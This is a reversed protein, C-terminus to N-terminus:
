SIVFDTADINTVGTLKIAFDITGGNDKDFAVYTDAGVVGIMVDYSNIGAIGDAAWTLFSAYDTLGTTKVATFSLGSTTDVYIKDTGHTFSKIEDINAASSEDTTAAETLYISDAGAGLTIVNKTKNDYIVTDKQAAFINAAGLYGSADISAAAEYGRYDIDGITITKTAGVTLNLWNNLVAFNDLVIGNDLPSATTTSKFGGTVTVNGVTINGSVNFDFDATVTATDIILADTLKTASLAINGVTLNGGVVDISVHGYAGTPAAADATNALSMDINGVKVPGVATSDAYLDFRAYGAYSVDGAGKVSLSVDGVTVAGISDTATLYLYFSADAQNKSSALDVDGVTVTGINETSSFSLTLGAYADAGNAVIDIAGALINGIGGVGGNDNEASLFAYVDAGDGVADMNINGYTINGITSDADNYQDISLRVTANKGAAMTIDGVTVNGINGDSVYVYNYFYAQANEAAQMNISGISLAGAGDEASFYQYGYIYASKAANLSVNGITIDGISGTDARADLYLSDFVANVGATVAINGVKINGISDTADLEITMSNDYASKGGSITLNGITVNGLSGDTASVDIDLSYAANSGLDLSVNGVTINGVNEGWASVDLGFFASNELKVAVNGLKIDSVDGNDAFAGVYVNLYANASGYMNINGLTVAGVSDGSIGNADNSVSITVSSSLGAHVDINGVTIAGVTAAGATAVTAYNSAWLYFDERSGMTLNINGITLAGVTANGKDAFARNEFTFYVDGTDTLSNGMVVAIDGITINGATANATLTASAKQYVSIDATGTVNDAGTITISGLTTNGVTANNGKGDAYAYNNISLDIMNYASKAGVASINGITINGATAAGNNSDASNYISFDCNSGNDAVVFDVTGITINGVKAAGKVSVDAYNHLRIDNSANVGLDVAVNGLTINGATANGTNAYASNYVSIETYGDQGIAVTVDGITFNGVTANGKAATASNYAYLYLDADEGGTIALDGITLNGATANGTGNVNAYNTLNVYAYASEGGAISVDGIALDGATADANTKSTTQSIDLYIYDDEGLVVDIGTAGFTASAGVSDTDDNYLSVNFDLGDVTGTADIAGDQVAAIAVNLGGTVDLNTINLSYNDVGSSSIKSIDTGYTSADMNLRGSKAALIQIENIGTMEVFAADHTWASTDDDALRVITLGNGDITDGTSFTPATEDILGKVTDISGSATLNITDMGETLQLTQGINSGSTTLTTDVVGPVVTTPASNNVLTGGFRIVPTAGTTDLMANVTGDSFTLRTGDADIQLPITAVLTTTTATVSYVKIANGFQQFQYSAITGTFTLREINQDAVVNNALPAVNVVETTGTAGFVDVFNDTVTGTTDELFVKQSAM